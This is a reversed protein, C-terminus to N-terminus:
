TTSRELANIWLWYVNLVVSPTNGVQLGSAMAFMQNILFYMFWFLEASLTLVLALSPLREYTKLQISLKYIVYLFSESYVKRIRVDSQMEPTSFATHWLPFLESEPVISSPKVEARDATHGQVFGEMRGSNWNGWRYLSILLTYM